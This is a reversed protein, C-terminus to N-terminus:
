REHLERSHWYLLVLCVSQAFGLATSEVGDVQFSANPVHTACDTAQM